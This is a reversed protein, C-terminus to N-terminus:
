HTLFEEAMIRRHRDWVFGDDGKQVQVRTLPGYYTEQCWPFIGEHKESGIRCECIEPILQGHQQCKELMQLGSEAVYAASFCEEHAL